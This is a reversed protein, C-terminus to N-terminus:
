SQFPGIYENGMHSSPMYYLALGMMGDLSEGFRGKGAVRGYGGPFLTIVWANRPGFRLFTLISRLKNAKSRRTTTKEFGNFHVEASGIWRANLNSPEGVKVSKRSM